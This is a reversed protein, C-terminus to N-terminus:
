AKKYQEGAAIKVPLINEPQPLPCTAFATFACPPNYAKNFDIRVQDGEAVETVLYRGAPYTSEGATADRFIIYYSHDEIHEAQLSLSEDGWTFALVADMQGERQLGVVDEVMVKKPPDFPRIRAVVIADENLDFWQRGSFGTRVPSQPDWVRVALQGAREILGFRIDDLFLYSPEGSTDPKLTAGTNPLSLDGLCLHAGPAPTVRVQGGALTFIGTEAPARSPLRVPNTAASGFPNEGEELWYLGALSLWSYERRLSAEVDRRWQALRASYEPTLDIAM